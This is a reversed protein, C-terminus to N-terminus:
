LAAQLMTPQLVSRVRYASSKSLSRSSASARENQDAASIATNRSRRRRDTIEWQV